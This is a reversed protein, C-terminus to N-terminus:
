AYVGVGTSPIQQAFYRATYSRIFGNLNALPIQIAFALTNYGKFSDNGGGQQGITNPFDPSPFFIRSDLLDFIGAYDGYFGDERSGAFVV